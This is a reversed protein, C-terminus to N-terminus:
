CLITTPNLENSTTEMQSDQATVAHFIKCHLADAKADERAREAQRLRREANERCKQTNRHDRLYTTRRTPNLKFFAGCLDCLVGKQGDCNLHVLFVQKDGTPLTFDAYQEPMTATFVEERHPM